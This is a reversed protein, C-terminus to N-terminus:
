CIRPLPESVPENLFRRGVGTDLVVDGPHAEVVEGVVAADGGRPRERLAALVSDADAEPVTLVVKGENAVELPDIGLVEGAGAVDSAVPIASESLEIGVGGKSAM